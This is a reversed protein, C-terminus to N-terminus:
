HIENQLNLKNIENRRQHLVVSYKRVAENLTALFFGSSLKAADDTYNIAQDIEGKMESALALNYLAVVKKKKSSYTLQNQWIKSAEEWKGKQAYDIAKNFEAQDIILYNRDVKTWDPLIHKSYNEGIVGAALSVANIKDPIKIGSYRGNEDYSDWYLTDVQSFRDVLKQKNVQYVSWINSTVVNASAGNGENSQNYFCSFMDLFILLDAGTKQSISQYWSNVAPRIETVRKPQVFTIPMVWVSDFKHRSNLQSSLSDLCTKIALSDTNFWKKDKILRHNHVQYHQLTDAPYKLNRSVLAVKRIDNGISYDAPKYVEISFKKYSVCSSALWLLLLAFGITERKM